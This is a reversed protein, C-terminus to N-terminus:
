IKLFNKCIANQNMNCVFQTCSKTEITTCLTCECWKHLWVHVYPLVTQKMRSDKQGGGRGVGNEEIGDLTAEDKEAGVGVGRTVYWWGSILSFMRGKTKQTQGIESLMINELKMWKGAFAM